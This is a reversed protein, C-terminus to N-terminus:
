RFCFKVPGSTSQAVWGDADFCHISCLVSVPGLWHSPSMRGEDM